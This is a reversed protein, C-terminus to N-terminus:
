PRQVTRRQDAFAVFGVQDVAPAVKAGAARVSFEVGQEVRAARVEIAIGVPDKGLVYGPHCRERRGARWDPIVLFHFLEGAKEKGREGQGCAKREGGLFDAAGRRGPLHDAGIVPDANIGVVVRLDGADGAMDALGAGTADLAAKTQGLIGRLKRQGTALDARDRQGGFQSILLGHETFVGRQDELFRLDGAEDVALAVHQNIQRDAALEDFACRGVRYRRHRDLGPAALLRSCCLAFPFRRM